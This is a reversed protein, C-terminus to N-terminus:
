PDGRKEKEKLAEKVCRSILDFLETDISRDLAITIKNGYSTISKVKAKAM